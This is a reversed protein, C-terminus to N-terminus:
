VYYIVYKVRGEDQNITESPGSVNVQPNEEDLENSMPSEGDSGYESDRRDQDVLLITRENAEREETSTEVNM